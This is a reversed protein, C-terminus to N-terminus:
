DMNTKGASLPLLVITCTHSNYKRVATRTFQMKSTMLNLHEQHSPLKRATDQLVKMFGKFSEVGKQSLIMYLDEVKEEHYFIGGHFFQRLGFYESISVLDEKFMPLLLKNITPSINAVADPLSESYVM